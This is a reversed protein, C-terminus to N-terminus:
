HGRLRPGGFKSASPKLANIIEGIYIVNGNRARNYVERLRMDLNGMPQRMDSTRVYLTFLARHLLQGDKLPPDVKANFVRLNLHNNSM